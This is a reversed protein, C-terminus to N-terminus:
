DAKTTQERNLKRKECFALYDEMAVRYLPRSAGVTRADIAPLEGSEIWNHVSRRDVGMRDAIDQKSLYDTSMHELVESIEIRYPANPSTLGLYAALDFDKPRSRALAALQKAEPWESASDMRDHCARCVLLLAYPKDLAKDRNVGRCIEHVDFRGRVNGCIECRGLRRLEDRVPKAEANRKRRKNSVSRM